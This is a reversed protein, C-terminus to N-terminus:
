TDKDIRSDEVGREFFVWFVSVWFLLYNCLKTTQSVVSNYLKLFGEEEKKPKKEKCKYYRSLLFSPLKQKNTRQRELVVGSANLPEWALPRVPALAALRCWLWLLALDSGCRHGVGCSM